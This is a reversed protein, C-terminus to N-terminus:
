PGLAMSTPNTRITTGGTGAFVHTGKTGVYAVELSSTANIQRQVSFNWADVTPFRIPNSIVFATVGNPLINKGNPGKPQAALISAPDLPRGM